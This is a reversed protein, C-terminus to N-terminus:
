LTAINSFGGILGLAVGFVLVTVAVGRSRSAIVAMLVAAFAITLIKAATLGSLGFTDTLSVAIPNAEAALGHRAFMVLFSAYDFLHALGLAILALLPM